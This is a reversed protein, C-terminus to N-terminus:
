KRVYFDVQVDNIINFKLTNNVTLDHMNDNIRSLFKNLSFTEMTMRGEKAFILM